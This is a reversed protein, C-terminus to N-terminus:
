KKNETSNSQTLTKLEAEIQSKGAYDPAEALLKDDNEIADAKRGAALLKGELTRRIRIRQQLSPNLTLANRWTDIASSPKGLAEYIEALKETLVASRATLRSTKSSSRSNPDACAAPM